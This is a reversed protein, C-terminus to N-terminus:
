RAGHRFVTTILRPHLRMEDLGDVMFRLKTSHRHSDHDIIKERLDQERSLPHAKGTFFGQCGSPCERGQGLRFGLGFVLIGHCNFEDGVVRFAESERSIRAV